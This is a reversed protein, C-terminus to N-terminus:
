SFDLRAREGRQLVVVYKSVNALDESLDLFDRKSHAAQTQLAPAPFSADFAAKMNHQGPDPLSSLYPHIHEREKLDNRIAAMAKNAKNITIEDPAQALEAEWRALAERMKMYGNEFPPPVGEGVNPSTVSDKPPEPLSQEQQAWAAQQQLDPQQGLRVDIGPMASRSPPGAARAPAPRPIPQARTLVDYIYNLRASNFLPFDSVKMGGIHTSRAKDNKLDVWLQDCPYRGTAKYDANRAEIWLHIAEIDHLDLENKSHAEIMANQQSFKWFRTYM